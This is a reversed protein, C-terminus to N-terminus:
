HLSIGARIDARQSRAGVALLPKRPHARCWLANGEDDRDKGGNLCGNEGHRQQCDGGDVRRPGIDGAIPGVRFRLFLGRHVQAAVDKPTLRALKFCEMLRERHRGAVADRAFFQFAAVGIEGPDIVTKAL